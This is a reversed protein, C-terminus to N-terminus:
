SCWLDKLDFFSRANCNGLNFSVTQGGWLLLPRTLCDARTKTKTKTSTTPKAASAFIGCDQVGLGFM